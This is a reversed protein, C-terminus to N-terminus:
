RGGRHGGGGAHGSSSGGGGFGSRSSSVRTRTTTTGTYIDVSETLNLQSFEDLPYNTPKVKMKYARVINGCVIGAVCAGIILSIVITKFWNTAIHGKFARGAMRTFAILGDALRGGKINDYVDHADLIFDIEKDSIKGEASGYTFIDYYYTGGSKQVLLFVLNDEYDPENVYSYSGTRLGICINVGYKERATRIEETISEKETQTLFGEPDYVPEGTNVTYGEAQATLCLVAPIVICIILIICFSLKKM